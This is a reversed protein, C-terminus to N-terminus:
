PTVENFPFRGYAYLSNGFSSVNAYSIPDGAHIMRGNGAYIGVHTVHDSTNYTGSFFVLDGPMAESASVVRCQNYLGQATTRQLPYVGSENFCWCVFGSCDFSTEPSSGGWVYPYGLYQNAVDFLHQVSTSSNTFNVNDEQVDGIQYLRYQYNTNLGWFESAENFGSIMKPVSTLPNGFFDSIFRFLSLFRSIVNKLFGGLSFGDHSNYNNIIQDIDINVNQIAELINDLKDNRDENQQIVDILQGELDALYDLMLDSNVSINAVDTQLLSLFDIVDDLTDGQSILLNVISLLKNAINPYYSNLTNLATKIDHVDNYTVQLLSTIDDNLDDIKGILQLLYTNGLSMKTDISDLIELIDILLEYQDETLYEYISDLLELRLNIVNVINTNEDHGADYFQANPNIGWHFTNWPYLLDEFAEDTVLRIKFDSFAGGEPVIFTGSVHFTKVFNGNAVMNIQYSGVSPYELWCPDTWTVGNPLLYEIGLGVFPQSPNNCYFIFEDITMDAFPINVWCDFTFDFHIVDNEEIFYYDKVINSKDSDLWFEVLFFINSQNQYIMLSSTSTYPNQSSGGYDDFNIGICDSDALAVPCVSLMICVALLVPLYRYTIRRLTKNM